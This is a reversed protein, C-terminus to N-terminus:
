SDAAGSAGAGWVNPLGLRSGRGTASRGSGSKNNKGSATKMIRMQGEESDEDVEDHNQSQQRDYASRQIMGRRVWGQIRDTGADERERDSIIRRSVHASSRLREANISSAARILSVSARSSIARSGPGDLESDEEQVIDRAPTVPAASPVHLHKRLSKISNQRKPPVLIKALDPEGDDSEDEDEEDGDEEDGRDGLDDGQDASDAGKPGPSLGTTGWGGLYPEAYESQVKRRGREREWQEKDGGGKRAKTWADGQAKTKALTPVQPEHDRTRRRGRVRGVVASFGSEEGGQHRGGGGGRVRSGARSAPASRCVVQMMVVEGESRGSRGRGIRAFLEPPALFQSNRITVDTNSQDSLRSTVSRGDSVVLSTVSQRPLRARTLDRYSNVQSISSRTQRLVRDKQSSIYSHNLPSPDPHQAQFYHQTPRSSQYNPDQNYHHHGTSSSSQIPGTTHAGAGGFLVAKAVSELWKKPLPPQVSRTTDDEGEGSGRKRYLVEPSESDSDNLLMTRRSSTFRQQAPTSNPRHISPASAMHRLYARARSPPFVPSPPPFQPYNGPRVPTPSQILLQNQRDTSNQSSRRQLSPLHEISASPFPPPPPPPMYRTQTSHRHVLGPRASQPQTQHRINSFQPHYTEMFNQSYHVPTQARSSPLQYSARPTPQIAEISNTITMLTPTLSGESGQDKHSHRHALPSVPPSYSDSMLPPSPPPPAHMGQGITGQTQLGKNSSSSHMLGALFGVVAGMGGRASGKGEKKEKNEGDGREGEPTFVRTEKYGAERLLDELREYTKSTGRRHLPVRGLDPPYRNRSRSPRPPTTPQPPSGSSNSNSTSQTLTPSSHSPSLSTQKRNYSAQCEVFRVTLPQSM